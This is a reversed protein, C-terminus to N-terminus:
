THATLDQRGRGENRQAPLPPASSWSRLCPPVVIGALIQNAHSSPAVLAIGRLDDSHRPHQPPAPQSCADSVPSSHSAGCGGPIPSLLVLSSRPPSPRSAASHHSGLVASHSLVLARSRSCFCMGDWGKRFAKWEVKWRGRAQGEWVYVEMM